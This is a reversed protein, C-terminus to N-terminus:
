CKQEVIKGIIRDRTKLTKKAWWAFAPEELLENNVACEAVQLLHLEKSDKLSHWSTSGDNWQCCLQWGKTTMRPKKQGNPMTVFADDETVASSDKRHDIIETLTCHTCGENDVQSCIHEAITNASFAEVEGEDLEVEYISTDLLPNKNANGILNGDADRKCRKVTGCAWDDGGPVRVRASIHRDFAEHQIDDAEALEPM